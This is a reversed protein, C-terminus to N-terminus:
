MPHMGVEETNGVHLSEKITYSNFEKVMIKYDADHEIKPCTADEEKRAQGQDMPNNYLREINLKSMDYVTPRPITGVSALQSHVNYTLKVVVPRASSTVLSKRTVAVVDKAVNSSEELNPSDIKEYITVGQSTDTIRIVIPAAQQTVDIATNTAPVPFGQRMMPVQARVGMQAHTLPKPASTSPQPEREPNTEQSRSDNLHFIAPVNDGMRLGSLALLICKSEDFLDLLYRTAPTFRCWLFEFVVHTFFHDHVFTVHFPYSLSVFVAHNHM